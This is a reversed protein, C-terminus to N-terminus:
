RSSILKEHCYNLMQKQSLMHGDPMKFLTDIRNQLHQKNYRVIENMQQRVDSLEHLPMAAFMQLNEVIISLKDKLNDTKDYDENLWKNFTVYGMKQLEALTGSSGIIMFPHGVAISRFTKETIMLSDSQCLTETVTSIFTSSYLMPDIENVVPRDHSHDLERKGMVRLKTFSEALNIDYARANKLNYDLFNFSNLGKDFLDNDLLEALFCARHDAPRRNLNLFLYKDKIPRFEIVEDAFNKSQFIDEMGCYAEVNFKFTNALSAKLNGTFLTVNEPPLNVENIWRDLIALDSNTTTGTMGESLNDILLHCRNQRIDQLVKKDLCRLGYNSVEFYQVGRTHILYFYPQDIETYVQYNVYHDLPKLLKNKQRDTFKSFYQDFMERFYVSPLSMKGTELYGWSRSAGNPLNNQLISDFPELAFVLNQYSNDTYM